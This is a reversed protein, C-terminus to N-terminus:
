KGPPTVRVIGKGEEITLFHNIPAKRVTEVQGDPWHLEILSVERRKGLGYHLRLDNSSLYSGGTRVEDWQVLDASVVKVRAGIADRNMGKGVTKITIWNNRNGGDNRLVTPKGDLNEVVVDIDGDNDIDGFAAGRSVRPVMLADGHQAAVESFKGEGDNHFLLIRQRYRTGVDANDVQPYVHGNVVMLDPWGDNDYDFFADGWGLYPGMIKGIGSTYTADTFLPPSISDQRYLIDYDDSFHSIFIGLRGTHMYDGIAIGMNSQERGEASVAVGAFVGIDTFTGDHNNRDLYNPGVDHAELLDPWGDHDVDTWVATLGYRRQPDSVGAKLTVNTFTGDGNSHFLADGTGPLGAPGCQVPVGLYQCFKGKGFEPLESLNFDVYNAVFLDLAGDRDYDGFTAGASYRHDDVGAKETVDTFTGDGNNHYLHNAGLCTLYLDQFGDGDYDAAVVGNVWGPYALGSKETVDTFTGDRNNHYLASRASKPDNATAVTLANTFYIDLWGDNDYDFLAVGGSMSEVIYKQGPASNHRFHIGAKATIDVFGVDATAGANRPELLPSFPGSLLLGGLSALFLRRYM